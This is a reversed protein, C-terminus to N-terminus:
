DGSPEVVVVAPVIDTELPGEDDRPLLDIPAPATAAPPASAKGIRRCRRAGVVNDIDASGLWEGDFNLEGKEDLVPM